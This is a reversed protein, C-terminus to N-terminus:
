KGLWSFDAPAEPEFYIKDLSRPLYLSGFKMMYGKGSIHAKLEKTHSFDVTSPGFYPTTTTSASTPSTPAGGENLRTNLDSYGAANNIQLDPSGIADVPSVDVPYGLMTCDKSLVTKSDGSVHLAAKQAAGGLYTASQDVGVMSVNEAPGTIAIGAHDAGNGAYTGGIIQINKGGEIELGHGLWGQSTVGILKVADVQDNSVGTPLEIRIGSGEYTAGGSRTFSSAVVRVERLRSASAVGPVLHLGSSLAGVQCDYITVHFIENQPVTTPSLLIGRDLGSISLNELTVHKCAYVAVGIGTNNAKKTRIDCKKILIQNCSSGHKPPQATDVKVAVGEAQHEFTFTCQEVLGQLANQFVVGKPCDQFVMRLVRVNQSGTGSMLDNGVLIAAGATLDDAYMIQLDQFLIGGIDYDKSSSNNVVFLNTPNHVMKLIPVTLSGPGTGTFLISPSLSATGAGITIPGNFEYTGVSPFSITGGNGNTYDSGGSLLADVLDQLNTTNAGPPQGPLIGYEQVNFIGSQVM